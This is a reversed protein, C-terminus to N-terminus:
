RYKIIVKLHFSLKEILFQITNQSGFFEHMQVTNALLVVAVFLNIKESYKLLHNEM